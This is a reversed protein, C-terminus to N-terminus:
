NTTDSIRSCRLVILHGIKPFIRSLIKALPSFIRAVFTTTKESLGKGRFHLPPLYWVGRVLEVTFCPSLQETLTKYTKWDDYPQGDSTVQRSFVKEAIFRFLGFLSNWNPTTVILIGGPKIVRAMEKVASRILPVHELVESCVAVDISNDVLPISLIDAAFLRDKSQNSRLAEFSLDFGLAGSNKVLLAQDEKNGCGIVLLRDPTPPLLKEILNVRRKNYICSAPNGTEGLAYMKEYYEKTNRDTMDTSLSTRM